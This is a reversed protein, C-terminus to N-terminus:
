SSFSDATTLTAEASDPREVFLPITSAFGVFPDRTALVPRIGFCFLITELCVLFLIVVATAYLSKRWRPICQSTKRMVFNETEGFGLPLDASWFYVVLM